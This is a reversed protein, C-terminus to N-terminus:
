HSEVNGELMSKAAEAIAEGAIKNGRKSLHGDLSMYLYGGGAEARFGPLLDLVEMDLGRVMESWTRDPLDLDYDAKSVGQRGIQQWFPQPYVQVETPILVVLVPFHGEALSKLERLYQRSVSYGKATRTPPELSFIDKLPLLPDISKLGVLSRIQGWGQWLLVYSMSNRQLWARLEYPLIGARSEEGVLFGDKVKSARPNLNDTLDNGVYVCIIVLDPSLKPGLTRLAELEHWTGYGPTGANVVEVNTTGSEGNLRAELISTFTEVEEVNLASVFSDGLVLIRKGGLPKARIEPGRFGLSNFRLHTTYEPNKLIGKFGPTLRYIREPDASFLGRPFRYLKQPMFTRVCVEVVGLSLLTACILLLLNPLVSGLRLKM